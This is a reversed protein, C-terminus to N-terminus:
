ADTAAEGHMSPSMRAKLEGKTPIHIEDDWDIWVECELMDGAWSTERRAWVIALVLAPRRLDHDGPDRASNHLMVVDGVRPVAPWIRVAYPTRSAKLYFDLGILNPM